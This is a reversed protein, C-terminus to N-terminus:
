PYEFRKRGLECVVIRGPNFSLVSTYKCGTGGTTRSDCTDIVGCVAGIGSVLLSILGWRITNDSCTKM